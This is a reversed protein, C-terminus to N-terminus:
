RMVIYASHFHEWAHDVVDVVRIFSADDGQDIPSNLLINEFVRTSFGYLFCHEVNM